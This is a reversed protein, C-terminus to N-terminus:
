AAEEFQGLWALALKTQEVREAADWEPDWAPDWAPHWEPDWAAGWAANWAATRAAADEPDWAAADAAADAATRAASLEEETAEGRAFRRATEIAQRPRDEGERVFRLAREAIDCNLLRVANDYEGPLARLCWMFDDIGNSELITRMPLPEDDSTTKGLHDLLKSWGDRHLGHKRIENLTTSLM